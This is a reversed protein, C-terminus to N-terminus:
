YGKAKRKGTRPLGGAVTAVARKDGVAREQAAKGGKESARFEKAAPESYRLPAITVGAQKLVAPRTLDRFAADPNYQRGLPQRLSREYADQSKFPFPLEPATYKAAKKDWKESVVVYKMSADTRGAAAEARQKAARDKASQMWKPNRQQGVWAGWGPLLSPEQIDPLEEAVAAAKEAEFEAGVDDGAFAARILDKQGMTAPRMPAQGEDDDSGDADAEAAAAKAPAPAAAAAKAAPKSGKGAAGAAAKDAGAVAVSQGAKGAKGGAAPKSKPDLYYGLGKPGKKFAYGPKAGEFGKARIFAPPPADAAAANAAAAAPTFLAARGGSLSGQQAEVDALLGRTSAAAGSRRREAASVDADVTVDAGGSSVLLGRGAAGAAVAADLDAEEEATPPAATKAGKQAKKQQQQKQQQKLRAAATSTPRGLREAKAEADEDEDSALDSAEDERPAEPQPAAAAGGGFRRRGATGDAPAVPVSYGVLAALGTAAAAGGGDAGDAADGDVDPAAHAQEDLERLLAEAEAAAALRRREMARQMFPLGLLGKKKGEAGDADGTGALIDLAASRLRGAASPKLKTPGGEPGGEGDSGSTSADTDSGTGDSGSGDGRGEIKRRLQQGLALQEAIAAKTGEDQALQGRKLARRAWRSSNRHRQTLREKARQFEAEIAAAKEADPDGGDADASAAALRNAKRKAAKALHRHYEKSKITKLRRSKLEHYFLLSRLKALRERREKAEELSLAKLALKEEAEQLAGDGAAGAAELLEAVDAELQIDASPVHQAVIAATTTVRPLNAADSVLRLTPAERNAKVIPQWKTVEEAAAEYGAKREQRDAVIAPLPVAVPKIAKAKRVRRGGQEGGEDDGALSAGGVKELLKRAAGLRRREEPSLGALLDALSLGGTGGASAAGPNLAFESEPYAESLVAANPDRRARKASRGGDAAALVERLMATHAEEDMDEDEQEEEEDDDDDDLFLDVDDDDAGDEADPAAGRRKPGRGPRKDDEGGEEGEADDKSEGEDWLEGDDDGVGLAGDDDDVDEDADVEKEFWAGFKKKDEETFAAEEDIEEDEFDSPLEYEYNDVQDFRNANKVEDPDSDEAEYIDDVRGKPKGERRSAKAPKGGAGGRPAAGGNKRKGLGGQPKPAKGSPKPRAM